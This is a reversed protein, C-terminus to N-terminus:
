GVSDMHDSVIYMLSKCVASMAIKDILMAVSTM